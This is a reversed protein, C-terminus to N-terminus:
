GLITGGIGLTAVNEAFNKVAHTIEEERDIFAKSNEAKFKLYTERQEPDTNFIKELKNM